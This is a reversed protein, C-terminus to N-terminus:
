LTGDLATIVIAAEDNTYTGAVTKTGLLQLEGTTTGTEKTEDNGPDCIIVIALLGDATITAQVLTGFLTGILTKALIGLV